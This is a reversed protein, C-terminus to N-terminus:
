IQIKLGAATPQQLKRLIRTRTGHSPHLKVAFKRTSSQALSCACPTAASGVARRTVRSKNCFPAFHCTAAFRSFGRGWFLSWGTMNRLREMEKELVEHPSSSLFPPLFERINAFDFLKVAHCHLCYLSTITFPTIVHLSALRERCLTHIKHVQKTYM